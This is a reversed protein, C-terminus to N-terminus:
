FIDIDIDLEQSLDRMMQDCNLMQKLANWQMNPLIASGFNDTTMEMM